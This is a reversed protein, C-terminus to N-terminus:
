VRSQLNQEHGYKTLIHLPNSSGAGERGEGLVTLRLMDGEWAEGPCEAITATIYFRSLVKYNRADGSEEQNRHYDIM